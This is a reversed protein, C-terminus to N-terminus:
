RRADGRDEVLPLDEADIVVEALLRDLVDQHQAEGVADELRQEVLLVDIVHLDGHGLLLADARAGAVVLLGARQAVHHLVVHQLQQASTAISGGRDSSASTTRSSFSSTSWDSRGICPSSTSALTTRACYAAPTRRRRRHGAVALLRRRDAARPGLGVDRQLHEDVVPAPGAHGEEQAGALAQRLAGALDGDVELVHRRDEEVGVRGVGSSGFTSAM